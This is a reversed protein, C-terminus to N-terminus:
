PVLGLYFQLDGDKRNSKGWQTWGVWKAGQKFEAYGDRFFTTQPFGYAKGKRIPFVQYVSSSPAELVLRYTKGALLVHASSFSYTAWRYSPSSSLVFATSAIQGQEIVVGDGTELRVRLNDGGSIRAARIGFNGVKRSGGTVTFAERVAQTGSIRQPAGVWAEM